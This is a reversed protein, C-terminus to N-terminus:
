VVCGGEERLPMRAAQDPCLSCLSTVERKNLSFNGVSRRPEEQKSESIKNEQLTLIFRLSCSCCKKQTCHKNSSLGKLSANFFLTANMKTMLESDDSCPQGLATFTTRCKHMVSLVKQRESSTVAM